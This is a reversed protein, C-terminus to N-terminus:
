LKSARDNHYGYMFGLMEEENYSYECFIIHAGFERGCLLYGSSVNDTKEDLEVTFYSQYVLRTNILIFIKVADGPAEAKPMGVTIVINDKDLRSVDSSFDSIKYESTSELAKCVSSYLEAIHGAGRTMVAVAFTETKNNALAPLFEQEFYTRNKM